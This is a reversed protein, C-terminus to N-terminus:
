DTRRPKPWRGCFRRLRGSSRCAAKKAAHSSRKCTRPTWVLRLRLVIASAGWVRCNPPRLTLHTHLHTRLSFTWLRGRILVSRGSGIAFPRGAVRRCARRAAIPNPEFLQAPPRRASGPLNVSHPASHVQSGVDSQLPRAASSGHITSRARGSNAESAGDHPQMASHTRERPHARGGMDHSPGAYPGCRADAPQLVRTAAPPRLSRPALRHCPPQGRLEYDTAISHRM